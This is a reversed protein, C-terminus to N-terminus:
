APVEVSATATVIVQLFDVIRPGWRSAIDDDLEIIPIGREIPLDQGMTVITGNEVLLVAHEMVEGNGLEVRRAKLAFLDGQAVAATPELGAPASLAGLLLLSSFM